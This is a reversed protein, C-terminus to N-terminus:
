RPLELSKAAAARKQTHTGHGLLFVDGIVNEANVIMLSHLGQVDVLLQQHTTQAQTNPKRTDDLETWIHERSPPVVTHRTSVKWRLELLVAKKSKRKEERRRKFTVLRRRSAKKKREGESM